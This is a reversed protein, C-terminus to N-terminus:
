GSKRLKIREFTRLDLRLTFGDYEVGSRSV